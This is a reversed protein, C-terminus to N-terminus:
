RSRYLNVSQCVWWCRSAPLKTSLCVLRHLLTEDVRQTPTDIPKASQVLPSNQGRTCKRQESSRRTESRLSVPWELPVPRARYARAGADFCRLIKCTSSDSFRVRIESLWGRILQVRCCVEARFWGLPFPPARWSAPFNTPIRVNSGEGGIRVDPEVQVIRVILVHPYSLDCM